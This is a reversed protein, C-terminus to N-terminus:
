AASKGSKKHANREGLIARIHVVFLLTFSLLWCYYGFSLVYEDKENSGILKIKTSLLISLGFVISSLAWYVAERKITIFAMLFTINALWAINMIVTGGSLFPTCILFAYLGSFGDKLAPLLFSILYLVISTTRTFLNINRLAGIEGM